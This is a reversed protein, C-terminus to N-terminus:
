IRQYSHLGLRLRQGEAFSEAFDKQAFTRSYSSVGDDVLRVVWEGLLEYLQVSVCHQTPRTDALVNRGYSLM